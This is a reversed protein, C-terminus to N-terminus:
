RADAADVIRSAVTHRFRSWGKRRVVEVANRAVVHMPQSVAVVARLGSRLFRQEGATRGVAAVAIVSRNFPEFESVGSARCSGRRKELRALVIYVGAVAPQRRDCHVFIAVDRQAVTFRARRNERADVDGATQRAIRGACHAGLNFHLGADADLQAGPIAPAVVAAHREVRDVM